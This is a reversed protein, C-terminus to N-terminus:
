ASLQQTVGVKTWGPMGVIQGWNELVIAALWVTGDPLTLLDGGIGSVRNVGQVNADVYMALRVGQINLGNIQQLDKWTLAQVQINVPLPAAYRPARKGSANSEFGTSQLWQGALLPNIAAVVPAVISHLDV